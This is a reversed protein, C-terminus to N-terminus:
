TIIVRKEIIREKNCKICKQEISNYSFHAQIPVGDQEAYNEWRQSLLTKKGDKWVHKCFYQKLFIFLKM